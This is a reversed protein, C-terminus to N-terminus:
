LANGLLGPFLTGLAFLGSLAVVIGVIPSLLEPVAPMPLPTRAQALLEEQDSLVLLEAGRWARPPVPSM